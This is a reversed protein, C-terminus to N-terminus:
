HVESTSAEKPTGDADTPDTTRTQADLTYRIAEYMADAARNAATVEDHTRTRDHAAAMAYGRRDGYQKVMDLLAGATTKDLTSV